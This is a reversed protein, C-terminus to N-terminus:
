LNITMSKIDKESVTSYKSHNNYMQKYKSNIESENNSNNRSIKAPRSSYVKQPTMRPNPKESNNQTFEKDLLIVKKIPKQDSSNLYKSLNSDYSSYLMKKNTKTESVIKRLQDRVWLVSM